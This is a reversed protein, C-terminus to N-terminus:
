WLRFFSFLWRLLLLQPTYEGAGIVAGEVHIARRHQLAEIIGIGDEDADGGVFGNLLTLDDGNLIQEPTVSIEKM